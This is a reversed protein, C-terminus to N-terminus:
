NGNVEEREKLEQAIVADAASELKHMIESLSLRKVEIPLDSENIFNVIAQQFEKIKLNM